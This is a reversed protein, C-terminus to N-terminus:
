RGSWGRDAVSPLVELPFSAVSSQLNDDTAPDAVPHAEAQVRMDALEPMGQRGSPLERDSLLRRNVHTVWSM